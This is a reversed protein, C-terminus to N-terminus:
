VLAGLAIPPTSQRPADTSLLAFRNHAQFGPGYDVARREGKRGIYCPSTIPNDTVHWSFRNPDGLAVVDFERSM